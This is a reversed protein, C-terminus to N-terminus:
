SLSMTKSVYDRFFRAQSSLIINAVHIVYTHVHVSMQAYTADVNVHVNVHVYMRAHMCAHMCTDLWTYDNVIMKLWKWDNEIM